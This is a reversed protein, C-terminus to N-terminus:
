ARHAAMQKPGFSDPLLEGLEYETRGGDRDVCVIRLGPAFESLVQRCIGCPAGLNETAVVLLVFEREGESVAKTIAVTEACVTAALSANEVNCGTVVRGSRTLLAAGVRYGSYPAYAGERAQRAAAILDDLSASTPM